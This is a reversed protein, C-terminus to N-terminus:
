KFAQTIFEQVTKPPNDSGFTKNILYTQQKKDVKLSSMAAKCDNLLLMKTADEQDKKEQEKNVKKVKSPKRPNSTPIDQLTIYETITFHKKPNNKAELFSSIIIWLFISMTIQSAIEIM